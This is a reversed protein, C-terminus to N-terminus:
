GKTAELSFQIPVKEGLDKRVWKGDKRRVMGGLDYDAFFYEELARLTLGSELLAEVIEALGHNWWYEKGKIKASPEAYSGQPTFIIPKGASSYPYAIRGKADLM